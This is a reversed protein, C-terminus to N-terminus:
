PTLVSVMKDVVGAGLNYKVLNQRLKTLNADDTPYPRYEEVEGAMRAANPVGAAEFAKTLDDKSAKNASVKAAAPASSAAGGSPATTAATTPAAAGGSTSPATTAAAPAQAPASTSAATAPAAGSSCAALLLSSAIGATAVLARLRPQTSLTM